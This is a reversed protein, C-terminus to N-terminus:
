GGEPYLAARTAHAVDRRAGISETGVLHTLNIMGQPWRLWLCNDSVKLSVGPATTASCPAETAARFGLDFAQCERESPCATGDLGCQRHWLRRARVMADTTLSRRDAEDAGVNRCGPRAECAFRGPYEASPKCWCLEYQPKDTSAPTASQAPLAAESPALRAKYLLAAVEDSYLFDSILARYLGVQTKDILGLLADQVETLTGLKDTHLASGSPISGENANPVVGSADSSSRGGESGSHQERAAAPGHKEIFQEIEILYSAAGFAAHDEPYLMQTMGCCQEHAVRLLRVAEALAVSESQLAKLGGELSGPTAWPSAAKFWALLMEDAKRLDELCADREQELERAVDANVVEPGGVQADFAAADTRPTPTM